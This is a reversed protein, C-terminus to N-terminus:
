IARKAKCVELRYEYFCVNNETEVILYFLGVMQNWLFALYHDFIFVLLLFFHQTSTSISGCLFLDKNHSTKLSQRTDLYRILRPSSVTLSQTDSRQLASRVDAANRTATIILLLQSWLAVQIGWFSVLHASLITFPRQRDRRNMPTFVSTKHSVDVVTKM